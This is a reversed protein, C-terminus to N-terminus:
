ANAEDDCEPSSWVLRPTSFSPSGNADLSRNRGFKPPRASSEFATGKRTGVSLFLRWDSFYSTYRQPEGHDYDEIAFHLPNGDANLAKVFYRLGRSGIVGIRYRFTGSSEPGIQLTLPGLWAGTALTDNSLRFATFQPWKGLQSLCLAYRSSFSDIVWLPHGGNALFLGSRTKWDLSAPTLELDPM